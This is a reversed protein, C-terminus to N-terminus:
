WQACVLSEGDVAQEIQHKKAMVGEDIMFHTCASNSRM